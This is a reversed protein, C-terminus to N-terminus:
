DQYGKYRFRVLAFDSTWEVVIELLRNRVLYEQRITVYEKKQMLAESLNCMRIKMKLATQGTGLKNLYKAFQHILGSFNVAFLNDSSADIRDIILKLVTISQDVLLNYRPSCVVDGDTEFCQSLTDEMHELLMAHLLPSLDRGLAEKATERMFINDSILHEFLEVVFMKIMGHYDVTTRPSRIPKRGTFLWLDLAKDKQSTTLLCGGVAALFGTYNQIPLNITIFQELVPDLFITVVLGVQWQLAREELTLKQYPKGFGARGFQPSTVKKEASRSLRSSTQESNSMLGEYDDLDIQSLIKWREWIEEWAGLIGPTHQSLVRLCERIRKQQAKRGLFSEKSKMIAEYVSLNEIMLLEHHTYIELDEMM